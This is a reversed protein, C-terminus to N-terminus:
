LFSAAHKQKNHHDIGGPQKLFEEATTVIKAHQECAQLM